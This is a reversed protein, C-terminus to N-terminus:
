WYPSLPRLGAIEELRERTGRTVGDPLMDLPFFGTEVIERDPSRPRTQAFERVVYVAVHDRRSIGRNFFMGHLAPAGTIVIHGEENAERAMAEELTEGAEVGGGPMHWGPTYGHRVLFVGREPHILAARVGLTMPRAFRWYLHMAHRVATARRSLRKDQAAVSATEQSM